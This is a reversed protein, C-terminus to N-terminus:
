SNIKLNKLATFKVNLHNQGCACETINLEAGCSPCLGRCDEKCLPKFPLALIIQEAIETTFDIEDGEYTASIMDVEALEVDEDQPLGAARIYFITFPSDIVMQFEALCRACNLSLATEVRGNVRIHDYERAVTLHVQLPLLFICEGARQLALLTPYDELSEEASLEVTKEKLEDVRIKVANVL